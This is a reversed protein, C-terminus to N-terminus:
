YLASLVGLVISCTQNLCLGGQKNPISDCMGEIDGM